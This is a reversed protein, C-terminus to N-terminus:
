PEGGWPMAELADWLTSRPHQAAYAQLWLHAQRWGLDVGEAHQEDGYAQVARAEAGRDEKPANQLRGLATLITEQTHVLVLLAAELADLSNPAEIFVLRVDRTDVYAIPDLAGLGIGDEVGVELNEAHPWVRRAMETLKELREDDSSSM